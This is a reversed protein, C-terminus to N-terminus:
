SLRLPLAAAGRGDCHRHRGRPGRRDPADYDDAFAGVHHVGRRGADLFERYTSPAAGPQILEIMTDGSYSLAVAALLDEDVPVRRGRVEISDAALPLPFRSFPGVGMTRTWHAIAAEMDEVVYAIQFVPGFTRSM